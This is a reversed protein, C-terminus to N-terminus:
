AARELTNIDEVLGRTFIGHCRTCFGWSLTHGGGDKVGRTRMSHKGVRCLIGRKKPVLELLYAYFHQEHSFRYENVEEITAYTVSCYPTGFRFSM